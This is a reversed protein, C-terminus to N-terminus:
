LLLIVTKKNDRPLLLRSEMFLQKIKFSFAVYFIFILMHISWGISM